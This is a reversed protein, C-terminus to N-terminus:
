ICFQLKITLLKPDPSTNALSHQGAHQQEQQKKGRCWLSQAFKLKRSKKRFHKQNDSLDFSVLCVFFNKAVLQKGILPIQEQCVTKKRVCGTVKNTYSTGGSLNERFPKRLLKWIKNKKVILKWSLFSQNVARATNTKMTLIEKRRRKKKEIFNGYTSFIQTLSGNYKIGVIEIANNCDPQNM